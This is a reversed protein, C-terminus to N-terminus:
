PKRTGELKKNGIFSNKNEDKKSSRGGRRGSGNVVM